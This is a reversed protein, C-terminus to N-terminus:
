AGSSRPPQLYRPLRPASGTRLRGGRSGVAQALDGALRGQIGHQWHGSRPPGRFSASLGCRRHIRSTVLSELPTARLGLGPQAAPIRSLHGDRLLLRRSPLGDIARPPWANWRSVNSSAPTAATSITSSAAISCSSAPTSGAKSGPAKRRLKRRARRRRPRALRLALRTSRRHGHGVPRAATFAPCDNLDVDAVGDGYTVM